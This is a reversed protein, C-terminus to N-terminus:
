LVRVYKAGEVCQSNLILISFSLTFIASSTDPNKLQSGNSSRNFSGAIVWFSRSHGFLLWFHGMKSIIKSNPRNRFKKDGPFLIEKIRLDM